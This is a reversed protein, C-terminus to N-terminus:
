GWRLTASENESRKGNKERLDKLTRTGVKKRELPTEGLGGRYGGGGEGLVRKGSLWLIIEKLKREHCNLLKGGVRKREGHTSICKKASDEKGMKWGKKSLDGNNQEGM